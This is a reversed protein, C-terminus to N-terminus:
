FFRIKFRLWYIDSAYGSLASMAFVLPVPNCIGDRNSLKALYPVLSHFYEIYFFYGHLEHLAHLNLANISKTKEEHGEHSEHNITSKIGYENM